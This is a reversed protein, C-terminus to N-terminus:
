AQERPTFAADEPLSPFFLLDARHPLGEFFRLVNGCCLRGDSNWELVRPYLSEERLVKKMAPADHPNSIVVAIQANLRGAHIADLSAELNTGALSALVGLRITM